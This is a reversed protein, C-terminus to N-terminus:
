FADMPEFGIDEEMNLSLEITSCYGKVNNTTPELGVREDM